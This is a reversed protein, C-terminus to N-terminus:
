EDDPEMSDLRHELSDPAPGDLPLEPHSAGKKKARRKKKPPREVSAGPPEPAAKPARPLPGVLTGEPYDEASPWGTAIREEYEDQGIHYDPYLIFPKGDFLSYGYNYKIHVWCEDKRASMRMFDNARYRPGIDQRETLTGGGDDHYSRSTFLYVTEGSLQGLVKRYDADHISFLQQFGTNAEVSALIDRGVKALQSPSQNSLIVYVGMSRAQELIVSLDASALMQFEDIVLYVPLKKDKRKYAATLLANLAFKGIERDSSTHLAGPLKFYYVSPEELADGMDIAHDMLAERREDDLPQEVANSGPRPDTVNLADILALNDVVAYLDDAHEQSRRTPFLEDKRNRLGRALQEFSDVEPELQLLKLLPARNARSFHIRGYGEGHDLGLARTYVDAREVPTFSSMHSQALPNFVFTSEGSESTFWKFHCGQKMARARAEAFLAQDGKLDLIVVSCDQGILQHLMPALGLSTKGTKTGGMIHAHHELVRKDLLVPHGGEKSVGLWLHDRELKDKSNRIRHTVASFLNRKQVFAEDSGDFAVFHHVASRAGVAYVFGRFLLAPIFTCGLAGLALALAFPILDDFLGWLSLLVWSEPARDLPVLSDLSAAALEERYRLTAAADLYAERAADPLQEAVTRTSEPLSARVAGLTPAEDGLRAIATAQNQRQWPGPGQLVLLVPFYGALLVVAAAFARYTWATELFRSRASGAASRFVGPAEDAQTGYGFWASSAYALARKVQESTVGTRAKYHELSWWAFGWVVVGAALLAFFGALLPVPTIVLVLFAAVLAVAVALFGQDFHAREVADRQQVVDGEPRPWRGLWRPLSAALHDVLARPRWLSRWSTRVSNDTLLDAHLLDGTHHAARGALRAVFCGAIVLLLFAPLPNDVSMLLVALPGALVAGLAVRRNKRVVLEYLAVVGGFAIVTLYLITTGTWEPLLRALFVFATVAIASLWWSPRPAGPDLEPTWDLEMQPMSSPMDEPQLPDRNVLYAADVGLENEVRQERARKKRLRAREAPHM